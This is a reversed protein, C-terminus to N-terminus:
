RVMWDFSGTDFALVADFTLLLAIGVGCTWCVFRLMREERRWDLRDLWLGLEECAFWAFCITLALFRFIPQLPRPLARRTRRIWLVLTQTRYSIGSLDLYPADPELAAAEKEFYRNAHRPLTPQPRIM